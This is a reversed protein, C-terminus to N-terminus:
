VGNLYKQFEVINKVDFGLNNVRKLTSELINVLLKQQKLTSNIELYESDSTIHFDIIKESDLKVKYEFKYYDYKQRYALAQKKELKNLKISEITFLRLYKSYLSPIDYIKSEFNTKDLKLDVDIMSLLEELSMKKEESM